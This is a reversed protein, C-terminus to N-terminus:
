NRETQHGSGGAAPQSDPARLFAGLAAYADQEEIPTLGHRDREDNLLDVWRALLIEDAAPKDDSLISDM